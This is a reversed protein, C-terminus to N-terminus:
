ERIFTGDQWKFPVTILSGYKNIQKLVYGERGGPDHPYLLSSTAATEYRLGIGEKFQGNVIMIDDIGTPTGACDYIIRVVTDIGALGQASHLRSTINCGYGQKGAQRDHAAISTRLESAVAKDRLLVLQAMFKDAGDFPLYVQFHIFGTKYPLCTRTIGQGPLYGIYRKGRVTFLVQYWHDTYNNRFVTSDTKRVVRISDHAGSRFIPISHLDPKQYVQTGHTFLHVWEENGTPPPVWGAILQASACANCFVVIILFWARPM